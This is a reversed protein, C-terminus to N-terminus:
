LVNQVHMYIKHNSSHSPFFAITAIVRVKVFMEPAERIYSTVNERQGCNHLLHGDM